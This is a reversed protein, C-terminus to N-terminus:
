SCLAGESCRRLPRVVVTRGSLASKLLYGLTLVGTIKDRLKKGVVELVCEKHKPRGSVHM